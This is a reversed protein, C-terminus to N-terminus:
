QGKYIFELGFLVINLWEEALTKFQLNSNNLNDQALTNM